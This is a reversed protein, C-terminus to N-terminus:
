MNNPLIKIEEKQPQTCTDKKTVCKTAVLYCLLRRPSIRLFYFSMGSPYAGSPSDDEPFFDESMAIFGSTINFVAVAFTTLNKM